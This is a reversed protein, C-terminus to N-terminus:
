TVTCEHTQIESHSGVCQFNKECMFKPSLWNKREGNEGVGCFSCWSRAVALVYEYNLRLWTIFPKRFTVYVDHPGLVSLCQTLYGAPVASTTRWIVTRIQRCRHYYCYLAIIFLRLSSPNIYKRFSQMYLTSVVQFSRPFDSLKEPSTVGSVYVRCGVGNSDNMPTPSSRHCENEFSGFYQSMGIPLLRTSYLGSILPASSHTRSTRHLGKCMLRWKRESLSHWRFTVILTAM